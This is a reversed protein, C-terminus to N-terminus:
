TPLDFLNLQTESYTAPIGPDPAGLIGYIDEVHSQSCLCWNAKEISSLAPHLQAKSPTAQDVNCRRSVINTASKKSTASRLLIVFFPSLLSLPTTPQRPLHLPTQNSSCPGGAPSHRPLRSSSGIRRTNYKNGMNVM